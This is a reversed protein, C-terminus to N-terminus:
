TKAADMRRKAALLQEALAVLDVKAKRLKPFMEEEEEKVHHAVYECLVCVKADYHSDNPKMGSIQKILAKASDHEVDAHDMLEQESIAARAAPYVVQEEVAAHVTLARCIETALAERESAEANQKVLKEYRRYMKKVEAHDAKLLEIADVPKKIAARRSKSAAGAPKTNKSMKSVTARANRKEASIATTPTTRM